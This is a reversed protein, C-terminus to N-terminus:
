KGNSGAYPFPEIAPFRISYVVDTISWAGDVMVVSWAEHGWQTLKGDTTFGYDFAVTAVVGDTGIRLDHVSEAQSKDTTCVERIFRSCNSVAIGEFRPNDKKISWETPKSMIGIFPVKDHFFLAKFRVSDKAEIAAQFNSVLDSLAANTSDQFQGLVRLCGMAMCLFLITKTKM